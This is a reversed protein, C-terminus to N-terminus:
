QFFSAFVDDYTNQQRNVLLLKKNYKVIAKNIQKAYFYRNKGKESHSDHIEYALEGNIKKYGVIVLFHGWKGILSTTGYYKGIEADKPLDNMDINIGIVNGAILSKVIKLSRDQAYRMSQTDLEEFQIQNHSLYKKIDRFGWWRYSLDNKEQKQVLMRANDVADIIDGYNRKGKAYKELMFASLPGCNSMDGFPKQVFIEGGPDNSFYGFASFHSILSIALIFNYVALKSFKNVM